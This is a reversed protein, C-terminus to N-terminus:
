QCETEPLIAAKEQTAPLFQELADMAQTAFVTGPGGSMMLAVGITEIIEARTAGADLADRM